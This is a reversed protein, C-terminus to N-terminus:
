SLQRVPIPQAGSPGLPLQETSGMVILVYDGEALDRLQFRGDADTPAAAAVWRLEFAHQRGVLTQWRNSPLLRSM